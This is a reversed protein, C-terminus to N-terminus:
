KNKKKSAKAAKIAAKFGTKLDARRKNIATIAVKSVELELDIYDKIAQITNRLGKAKSGNKDNKQEGVEYSGIYKKEAELEKKLDKLIRRDETSSVFTDIADSTCFDKFPVEVATLKGDKVKVKKGLLEYVYKTAVATRSANLDSKPAGLLTYLRHKFVTQNQNRKDSDLTDVFTDILKKAAETKKTFDTALSVKFKHEWNVTMKVKGTLNSAAIINEGHNKAFAKDLGKTISDLLQQIKKVVTEIARLIGTKIKGFVDKIVDLAGELDAETPGGTDEMEAVVVDIQTAALIDEMESIGEDIVDYIDEMEATFSSLDYENFPLLGVSTNAEGSSRYKNLADM